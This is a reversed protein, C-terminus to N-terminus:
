LTKMKYRDYIDQWSKTVINEKYYDKECRPIFDGFNSEYDSYNGCYRCYENMLKKQKELAIMSLNKEGKDAQFLRDISGIVSCPYYGNINLNIGCYSAVWCGASFDTSNKYRGQDIPANNFPTFYDIKNTTKFSKNDIYLNSHKPLQALIKKTENSFGNSTIQLITTNSYKEIYNKLILQIIKLFDPHLTPEGGLINILEWRKKLKISEDIFNEIQKLSIYDKSKVQASSRNCSECKLNCEYLIDIEIKNANPIFDRRTKIVDSPIYSKSTLIKSIYRNKIKKMEKTSPLSRQHFYNYKTYFIPKSAMEVVPVMIAYDVSYKIWEKTKGVIKDQKEIKFDWIKISDFLYKKFTKLHQWVNGGNIRPTQFDPFYRYIPYLKDTRYMKGVVVDAGKKYFEKLNGFVDNGILADDGDVMCIISDQNSCFHHIAKYTNAMGYQQFRNQIYTIKEKIDSNQVLYKIFSNLGNSSNDDIIIWGFNKDKQSVISNWCRLFRAYSIDKVLTVVVLEEDRKPVAWDNFSGVLEYEEKQKQILYGSEIRDLITFWVDICEKRFNQPHIFYSRSDGGRISIKNTQKQKKHLARHWTLELQKGRLGNPLPQLAVLRERDILAFRVEPVFGGNEFGFYNNFQDKLKPINFGVSVVDKNKEIEQIMDNLFSHSYDQRGILVDSDLQLIYKSKVQEFAYLQTTVPENKFTHTQNCNDIDFWTKNVQVIKDEPLELIFDILKEDVLRQVEYLLKQYEGNQNYERLFNNRKSDILIVKNKFRNPTSLQHIIHKVQNYITDSEQVCTKIMLTVDYSEDNNRVVEIVYFLPELLPIEDDTLELNYYKVNSVRIGQSLLLYHLNSFHLAKFNKVLFINQTSSIIIDVLEETTHVEIFSSKTDLLEKSTYSFNIYSFITNIFSQIGKLENFNNITRQKLEKKEDENLNTYMIEIYLRACMNLFLNDDYPVVDNGYDIFKLSKEIQLFNDLKINKCVINNKWCDVAFYIADERDIRDIVEFNKNYKYKLIYVDETLIVELQNIFYQGSLSLNKLFYFNENNLPTHLFLKYVYQTDHFVIGENGAGLYIFNKINLKNLIEKAKQIKSM